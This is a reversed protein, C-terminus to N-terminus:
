PAAASRSPSRRLCTHLRHRSSATSRISAPARPAARASQLVPRLMSSRRVEPLRLLSVIAVSVCSDAFSACSAWSFGSSISTAAPRSRSCSSPQIGVSAVSASIRVNGIGIDCSKRERPSICRCALGELGPHLLVPLLLRRALPIDLDLRLLQVLAQMESGATPVAATAPHTPFSRSTRTKIVPAVPKTPPWTARCYAASPALRQSNVLCVLRSSESVPM